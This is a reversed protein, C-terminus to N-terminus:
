SWRVSNHNYDVDYTPKKGLYTRDHVSVRMEVALLVPLFIVMLFRWVSTDM